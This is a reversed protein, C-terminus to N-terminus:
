FRADVPGLDLRLGAILATGRGEVSRVDLSAAGGPTAHGPDPLGSDASAPITMAIGVSWLREDCSSSNRTAASRRAVGPVTSPLIGEYSNSVTLGDVPREVWGEGGGIGLFGRRREWRRTVIASGIAKYVFLNTAFANLEVQWQGDPTEKVDKSAM